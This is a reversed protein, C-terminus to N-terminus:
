VTENIRDIIRTTWWIEEPPIPSETGRILTTAEEDILHYMQRNMTGFKPGVRRGLNYYFVENLYLRGTEVLNEVAEKMRYGDRQLASLPKHLFRGTNDTPLTMLSHYTIDAEITGKTGHVRVTKQNPVDSQVHVSCLVGAASTYSVGVGDYRIDSEYDNKLTTNVCISDESKPYGALRLGAYIPHTFGEELEGGPLDLVWDGREPTDPLLDEGFYVEVSKVDGVEGAAVRERLTRMEYHFLASHVETLRVGAAEAQEALSEYDELDDTIPKEVLVDIGENIVDSTIEFHSRVPTCVHVWDLNEKALMERYDTYGNAGFDSAVEKVRDSDIDCVARLNTKPNISLALLHDRAVTGLGIMGVTLSM